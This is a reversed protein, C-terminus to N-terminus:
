SDNLLAKPITVRCFGSTDNEGEVYFLLFEQGPQLYQNPSSLWIVLNLESVTSNSIVQVHYMKSDLGIVEFDYFKGMLPYRDQNNDDIPFADDGIGDSGTENQFQGGYLDIGAYDSWYNGGSPYGCDWVNISSQQYQHEWGWDFVQQFNSIFNNHYFISNNSGRLFVGYQNNIINNGSFVNSHAFELFIAHLNNTVNNKNISNLSSFLLYIGSENNESINNTQVSNNRSYIFCIGCRNIEINNQIINSNNSNEIYIGYLKNATLHNKYINIGRSNSLQIGVQFNKVSINKVSVNIRSSLNIGVGDGAGTLQFGMGDIVIDNREIIIGAVSSVIDDTLTYTINDHTTIPANSPEICGNARIYVTGTWSSKAIRINVVLFLVYMLLLTRTVWFRIKRM